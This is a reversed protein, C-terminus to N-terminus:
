MHRATQSYWAAAQALCRLHSTSLTDAHSHRAIGAPRTELVDEKGVDSGEVPLGEAKWAAIGGELHAINTIGADLLDKAARLSLSDRGFARQSDVYADRKGDRREVERKLTGGTTCALVITRTEDGLLTKAESAFDPNRETTKSGLFIKKGLNGKVGKAKTYAPLSLSGEIHEKEYFKGTRVDM